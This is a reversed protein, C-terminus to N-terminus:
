GAGIASIFKEWGFWHFSLLELVASTGRPDFTACLSPSKDEDLKRILGASSWGPAYPFQIFAKILFPNRIGEGNMAKLSPLPLHGDHRQGLNEPVLYILNLNTPALPPEFIQM